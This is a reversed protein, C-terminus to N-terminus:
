RSRPLRFFRVLNGLLRAISDRLLKVEDAVNIIAEANADVERRFHRLVLALADGFLAMAHLFGIAAALAFLVVIAPSWNGVLNAFASM